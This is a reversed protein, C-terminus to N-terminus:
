VRVLGHRIAFMALGVRSKVDLKEFLHDRLNDVTRPNLNMHTAIEKYTYDSSSLKLFDVEQETLVNRQLMAANGLRFLNVLKGTSTNSYYYGNEMVSKLAQKLETPHIDKKLFGKVGAQLLRIMTAEADYMTLMLIHIQPHHTNFWMATEHGEMEPMNLDLLIIDPLYNKQIKKILEKGNDAQIIVKCDGFNDILGALANRLLIHDDAMAIKIM